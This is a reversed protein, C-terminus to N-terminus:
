SGATGDPRAGPREAPATAGEEPAHGGGGSPASAVAEPPTEAVQPKGSRLLRGAAKAIHRRAAEARDGELVERKLVEAELAAKLDEVEVRVDPSLRRV